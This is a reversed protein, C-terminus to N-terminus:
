LRTEQVELYKRVEYLMNGTHRSVAVQKKTTQDYAAITPGQIQWELGTAAGDRLIPGHGHFGPVGGLTLKFTTTMLPAAKTETVYMAAYM